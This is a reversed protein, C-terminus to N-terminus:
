RSMAAIAVAGYAFAFTLFVMAILIYITVNLDQIVYMLMAGYLLLTAVLTQGILTPITTKLVKFDQSTSHANAVTIASWIYLAIGVIGMIAMVIMSGSNGQAGTSSSASPSSGAAMGLVEKAGKLAIGIESM